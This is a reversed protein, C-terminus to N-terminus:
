PRANKRGEADALYEEARTRVKLDTTLEKLLDEPELTTVTATAWEAMLDEMEKKEAKRQRHQELDLLETATPGKPRITTVKARNDQGIELLAAAPRRQLDHQHAGTISISGPAIFTKGRRETVGKDEHHHGVALVSLEADDFWDLGFLPEGYFEGTQKGFWFHGLVVLHDAGQKTKAKVHEARGHRYSGGAVRVTPGPEFLLEHEVDLPSGKLGTEPAGSKYDHNGGIGAHVYGGQESATRLREIVEATLTHPNSRPEKLHFLDGTWLVADVKREAAFKLAQDLNNKLYTPYDLKFASPSHPAHHPDNIILARFTTPDRKQLTTTRTAM